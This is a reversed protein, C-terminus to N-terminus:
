KEDFYAKIEEESLVNKFLDRAIYNTKCHNNKESYDICNEVLELMRDEFEAVNGASIKQLLDMINNANSM